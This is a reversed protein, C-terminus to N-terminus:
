RPMRAIARAQRGAHALRESIARLEGELETVDHAVTLKATDGSSGTRENASLGVHGPPDPPTVWHDIGPLGFAKSLAVLEDATFERVRTGDASREAASWSAKSWRRGLFPELREAAQDQTWGREERALRLNLAVTQNATM